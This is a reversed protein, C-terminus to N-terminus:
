IGMNACNKCYKNGRHSLRFTTIANGSLIESPSSEFINGIQYPNLMNCPGVTGNHFVCLKSGIINCTEMTGCTNQAETSSLPVGAMQDPVLCERGASSLIHRAEDFQVILDHHRRSITDVFHGMARGSITNYLVNCNHISAFLAIDVIRHLNLEQVTFVIFPRKEIASLAELNAEITALSAGRRIASLEVADTSDMSVFLQVKCSILSDLIENGSFMLNTFLNITTSPCERRTKHLIEVFMPHITSEGRGNLRIARSLGKVSSLVRRFNDFTMFRQADWTTGFDCMICRLNCNHSIEILVEDLLRCM